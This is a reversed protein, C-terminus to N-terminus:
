RLSTGYLMNFRGDKKKKSKKVLSIVQKNIRDIVEADFPKLYTMTVRISSHGLSQSILGVPVGSHYALTAWTHRATYSSVSVGPLLQKMLRALERNFHRLTEQYRHHHEEMFLGGHLLPFLYESDTKDRYKQLLRMADPPVDVVMLKGTKHRRYTIRRNRLDSKRLHALDIFPMGRLMFMLLFYTLVQQQRLTLVSFDTNRLQEMQEATLARKTRSEVKTYVDKFLVPNYGEIGPSMWRNYVAQLTRMYTSITNPSSQQGALWDEYEKLREPTFIEQMSLSATTNKPHREEACFKEYSRLTCAYVHMAPFKGERKLMGIVEPIYLRLDDKANKREVNM